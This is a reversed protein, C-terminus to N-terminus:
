GDSMERMLEAKKKMCAASSPFVFSRDNSCRLLHRCSFCAGTAIAWSVARGEYQKDAPYPQDFMTILTMDAM